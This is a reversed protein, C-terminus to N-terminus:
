LLDRADKLKKYDSPKGIGIYHFKKHESIEAKVVFIIEGSDLEEKTYGLFELWDRELVPSYSGSSQAKVTKTQVDNVNVFMVQM